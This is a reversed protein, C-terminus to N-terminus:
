DNKVSGKENRYYRYLINVYIFVWVVLINGTKLVFPLGSASAASALLILSLLMFLGCALSIRNMGANLRGLGAFGAFALLFGAAAMILLPWGTLMGVGDLLATATDGAYAQSGIGSRVGNKLLEIYFSVDILEEPILAPPIYLSFRIGAGVFILATAASLLKLAAIVMRGGNKRIVNSLYDARCERRLVAATEAVTDKLWSLLILIVVGGLIFVLMGPKQELLARTINYDEIRYDSPDRGAEQLAEAILKRNNDLTSRDETMLQFSPIGASGDLEFLRAGPIFVAPFGDDALSSLISADRKVVGVIKFKVGYIGLTKGVADVSRFANWALRDDIVAVNAGEREATETFFGGCLMDMRLFRPLMYNTGTVTSVISADGAKVTVGSLAPRATYTFEETGFSGALSKVERPTLGSGSQSGTAKATIVAKNMGNGGNLLVGKETLSAPATVCSLLLFIGGFIPILARNATKM